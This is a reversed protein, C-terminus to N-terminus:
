ISWGKVSIYLAASSPERYQCVRCKRRPSLDWRQSTLVMRPLLRSPTGLCALHPVLLCVSRGWWAWVHYPAAFHEVQRFSTTNPSYRRSKISQDHGLLPAHPCLGYSSAWFCFTETCSTDSLTHVHTELTSRFGPQNESILLNFCPMFKNLEQPSKSNGLTIGRAGLSLPSLSILAWTKLVLRRKLVSEFYLKVQWATFHWTYRCTEFKNTQLVLCISGILFSWM